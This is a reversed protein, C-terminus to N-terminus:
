EWYADFTEKATAKTNESQIAEAAVTLEFKSLSIMDEVTLDVPITVTEFLPATQKPALESMLYYTWVLSGDKEEAAGDLTWKDSDVTAIDALSATNLGADKWADAKTLTVKVRVWQNYKGTNTVTTNKTWISGPAINEYTFSQGEVGADTVTISFLEDPKLPNEPDYGAMMFKNEATDNATFYALTGFATVALLCVCAAALIIKKKRNKM